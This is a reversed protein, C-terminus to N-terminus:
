IYFINKNMPSSFKEFKIIKNNYLYYIIFLAIHLGFLQAPGTKIAPMYHILSIHWVTLIILNIKSNLNFLKKNILIKILVLANLGLIFINFLLGLEMFRIFYGFEFTSTYDTILSINPIGFLIYDLPLSLYAYIIETFNYLYKQLNTDFITSSNIVTKGTPILEFFTNSYFITFIVGFIFIPLLGYRSSPILLISLAIWVIFMIMSTMSFGLLLLIFSMVVWKINIKNYNRKDYPYFWMIGSVCIMSYIQPGLYLSNNGMIPYGLIESLKSEIRVYGLVVDSRFLNFLIWENYNAIILEIVMFFLLIKYIKSVYNIYSQNQEIKTSSKIYIYFILGFILPTISASYTFGRSDIIGYIIFAFIILIILFINKRLKPIRFSFLFLSVTLLLLLRNLDYGILVQIIPLFISILTILYPFKQFLTVV